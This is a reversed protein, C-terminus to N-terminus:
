VDAWTPPVRYGWPTGLGPCYFEGGLHPDGGMHACAQSLPSAGPWPVGEGMGRHTLSAPPASCGAWRCPPFWGGQPAGQLQAPPIGPCPPLFGWICLVEEITPVHGVQPPPAQVPVSVEKGRGRKPGGQAALGTAHPVDGEACLGLSPSLWAPTPSGRLQPAEGWTSLCYPTPLMSPAALWSPEWQASGPLPWSAPFLAQAGQTRGTKQSPGTTDQLIQRGKGVSSHIHTRNM